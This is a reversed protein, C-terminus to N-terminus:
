ADGPRRGAGGQVKEELGDRSSDWVGSEWKKPGSLRRDLSLAPTM